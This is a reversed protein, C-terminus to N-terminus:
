DHRYTEIDGHASEERANSKTNTTAAQLRLLPILVPVLSHERANFLHAAMIPIRAPHIGVCAGARPPLSPPPPHVNRVAIGSFHSPPDGLPSCPLQRSRGGGSGSLTAREQPRLKRRVIPRTFSTKSPHSAAAFPRAPAPLAHGRSGKREVTTKKTPSPPKALRNTLPSEECTCCVKIEPNSTTEFSNKEAFLPYPLTTLPRVPLFHKSRVREFIKPGVKLDRRTRLRSDASIRIRSPFAPNPPAYSVARLLTPFREGQCRTRNRPLVNHMKIQM